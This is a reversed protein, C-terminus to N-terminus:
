SPGKAGPTRNVPGLAHFKLDEALGTDTEVRILVDRAGRASMSGRAMTITLPFTRSEGPELRVPNAEATVGVGESPSSVTFTAEVDKRNVLRLRIANAVDGSPTEYFPAGIRPLVAVEAVPRTALLVTMLGFLGAWVSLYIVLRPRLVRAREGAMRAQSSYRILGRERGVKDMVADCADICQACGICEMQLGERIDIGTPCTTVCMRCDICDGRRDADPLIDLSVTLGEESAAPSRPARKKAGRPEGRRVDYSVILSKRDLLAAQMRGYPCAILCTQERFYGFDFTMLGLTAAMVLFAGPHELPSQRVWKWLTEVGVFYALALHAIYLTVLFFTIHKLTKRVGAAGRVKQKKGPEGDFFREIPRYLFEMYVTQPCAWGCWIRGFLATVAFIGVFVSGILLAFIPTDTPLLTQGFFHFKRNPLDILLAPRGGM